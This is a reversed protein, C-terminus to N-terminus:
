SSPRGARWLSGGMGVLGANRLATGLTQALDPLPLFTIVFNTVIGALFLGATWRPLVGARRTADGFLVGGAVMLAGHATYTGGLRAWLDEYTPVGSEIALLTTHAFYVFAFGYILAGALGARSIRPRQAAYLGLVIAPVPLFAVYNLWLQAPSFGGQTWELLDTVSHLLPAAVAGVAM